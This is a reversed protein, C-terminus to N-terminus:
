QSKNNITFFIITTEKGTYGPPCPPLQCNPYQGVYPKECKPPPPPPRTTPTQCNPYTGITGTFFM